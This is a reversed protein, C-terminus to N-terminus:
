LSGGTYEILVSGSGSFTLTNEGEDLIMDYLKNIGETLNYTAGNYAVTM